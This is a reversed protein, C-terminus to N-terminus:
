LRVILICSVEVESNGEPTILEIEEPLDLNPVLPQTDTQVDTTDDSLLNSASEHQLKAVEQELREKMYELSKEKLLSLFVDFANNDLKIRSAISSMFITAKQHATTGTSLELSSDLHQKGIIKKSWAIPLLTHLEPSIAQVLDAYLNQIARYQFSPSVYLQSRPQSLCRPTRTLENTIHTEGM